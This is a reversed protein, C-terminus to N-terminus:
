EEVQVVGGPVREDLHFGNGLQSEYIEQFIPSTQM